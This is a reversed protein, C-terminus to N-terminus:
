TLSNRPPARPDAHRVCALFPRPCAVATHPTHPSTQFTLPGPQAALAFGASLCLPCHAEGHPHAPPANPAADSLGPAPSVGPDPTQPALEMDAMASRPLGASHRHATPATVAAPTVQVLLTGPLGLGGAQPSRLLHAASAILTLLVLLWRQGQPWTVPGSEPRGFM